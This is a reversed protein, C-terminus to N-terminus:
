PESAWSGNGRLVPGVTTVQDVDTVVFKIGGEANVGVHTWGIGAVFKAWCELKNYNECTGETYMECDAKEPTCSKSPDNISVCHSQPIKSANSWTTRGRRYATGCITPIGSVETKECTPHSEGDGCDPLSEVKQCQGALLTLASFEVLSATAVFSVIIYNTKM